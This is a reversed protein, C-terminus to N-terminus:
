GERQKLGLTVSESVARTGGLSSVVVVGELDARPLQGIDFGSEYFLEHVM